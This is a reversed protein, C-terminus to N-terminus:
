INYNKPSISQFVLMVKKKEKTSFQGKLQRSRAKRYGNEIKNGKQAQRPDHAELGSIRYMDTEEQKTAKERTSM